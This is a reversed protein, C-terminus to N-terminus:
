AAGAMSQGEDATPGYISPVAIDNLRLYLAMQARHHVLHNICMGRIVAIRPMSFAVREGKSLTWNALMTEDSAEELATRAKACEADFKELVAAISTLPKPPEFGALDLSPTQITTALWMPMDTLHTALAAVSMSKPHPKYDLISDNLRELVRRTTAVEQDFEPILAQAIM